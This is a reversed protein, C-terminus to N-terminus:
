VDPKQVLAERTSACELLTLEAPFQDGVCSFEAPHPWLASPLGLSEVPPSSTSGTHKLHPLITGKGFSYQDIVTQTEEFLKELFLVGLSGQQTCGPSGEAPGSCPLTTNGTTPPGILASGLSTSYCICSGPFTTEPDRAFEKREWASQIGRQNEGSSATHTGRTEIATLQPDMNPTSVSCEQPSSTKGSLYGELKEAAACPLPPWGKGM